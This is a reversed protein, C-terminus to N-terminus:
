RFLTVHGSFQHSSDDNGEVDLIYYYTGESNDGGDWFENNTLGTWQYVEKGWRNYITGTMSRVGQHWITFIDNDGDGNPSIVNPIIVVPEDTVIITVSATDTCGNIDVAILTTVFTGSNIFTYSPDTAISTGGDGFDWLYGVAGTSTNTYDVDLPKVGETPNATFSATPSTSTITVPVLPGICAGLNENVYFTYVGSGPSTFTYTSSGSLLLTDGNPDAYWNITGGIGNTATLTVSDGDCIIVNTVTLPGPVDIITISLTSDHPCPGNTSYTIDFVGLASADLDVLGTAPDIVLGAPSATFTGGPIGTVTGSPDAEDQCYINSPYNFGADDPPNVFLSITDSAACAPASANVYDVVYTISSGPTSIPNQITPDDLDTSPSWTFNIGSPDSNCYNFRVDPRNMSTIPNGSYCVGAVDANYYLVSNYTTPTYYTEASLTWATNNFCVEVILNSVGDWNYPNAFQHTNWGTQIVYPQGPYVVNMNVDPEWASLDTADTCGMRIEFGQYNVDATPDINAINFSLESIKGGTFGLAQLESAQFMIQHRAGWYFGGYPAPYVTNGNVAAQNGVWVTDTAACPIASLTCATPIGSLLLDLQISDGPCVSDIDSYAQIQPLIVNVTANAYCTDDLFNTYMVQYTTSDSPNVLTDQQNSGDQWVYTYPVCTTYIQVNDIGWHDFTNGSTATQAWSLMTTDTMAAAPIPFCYNNWSTMMPDNGGNPDFYNITIWTLGNDISYQFYVGETALDPGECPSAQGQIAFKLDFCMTGGCTLDLQNTAISRPAPTGDGMWMYISGDPTPGCPNTFDAGATTQWGSGANGLNFDNDMAATGGLGTATLTVTDGCLITVPDPSISVTCQAYVSGTYSFASLFALMLTNKVSRITTKM